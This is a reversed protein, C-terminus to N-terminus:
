CENRFIRVRFAQGIYACPSSGREPKVIMGSLARTESRTRGCLKKSEDNERAVTRSISRKKAVVQKEKLIFKNFISAAATHHQAPVCLRMDALTPTSDCAEDSIGCGRLRLATTLSKRECGFGNQQFADAWNQSLTHEAAQSLSKVFELIDDDGCRKQLRKEDYSERVIRKFNCFVHTDLPQLMFTTKAPVIVPTIGTDACARLVIPALHAPLADMVLVIAFDSRFAALDAALTRVLRACFAANM